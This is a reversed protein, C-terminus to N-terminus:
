MIRFKDSFNDFILIIYYHESILTGHIQHKEISFYHIRGM